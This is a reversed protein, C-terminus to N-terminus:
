YGMGRCCGVVPGGEDVGAVVFKAEAVPGDWVVLDGGAGFMEGFDILGIPM